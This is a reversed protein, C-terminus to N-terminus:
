ATYFCFFSQGNSDRIIVKRSKYPLKYDTSKLHPMHPLGDYVENREQQSSSYLLLRDIREDLLQLMCSPSVICYLKLCKSLCCVEIMILIYESPNNENGPSLLGPGELGTRCSNKSKVHQLYPKPM